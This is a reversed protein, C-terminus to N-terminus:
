LPDRLLRTSKISLYLLYLVIYQTLGSNINVSFRNITVAAFNHFLALQSSQGIINRKSLQVKFM